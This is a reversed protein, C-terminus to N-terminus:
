NSVTSKHWQQQLRGEEFFPIFFFASYLVYSIIAGISQVIPTFTPYYAYFNYDAVTMVVLFVIFGGLLTMAYSDRTTWMYISFSVRGKSGYGRARMSDASEIAQELAWSVLMTLLKFSRALRRHLRGETLPQGSMRQAELMQTLQHKFLPVFRLTMSILLAFTPSVKSFLYYFADSSMCQQLLRCWMLTTALLVGIAAGYCIAEVTIANGNMYLIPTEGNHSFLPNIIASGTIIIINWLMTTAFGKRAIRWLLLASGIFSAALLVPHMFFM